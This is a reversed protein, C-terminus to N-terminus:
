FIRYIVFEESIRVQEHFVTEDAEENTAQEGTKQLAKAINMHFFDDLPQLYFGFLM